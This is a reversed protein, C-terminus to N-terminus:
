LTFFCILEFMIICKWSIKLMAQSCTCRAKESGHAHFSASCSAEPERIWNTSVSGCLGFGTSRMILQKSVGLTVCAFHSSWFCLFNMVICEVLVAACLLLLLFFDSLTVHSIPAADSSDNALVAGKINLGGVEGVEGM